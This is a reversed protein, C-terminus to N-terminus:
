EIYPPLGAVHFATFATKSSPTRFQSPDKGGKGLRRLGGSDLPDSFISYAIAYLDGRPSTRGAVSPFLLHQQQEQHEQQQQKNNKNNFRKKPRKIKPCSFRTKSMKNKPCRTPAPEQIQDWSIEINQGKFRFIWFGNQDFENPAPEQIQGWSM